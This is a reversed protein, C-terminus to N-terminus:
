SILLITESEIGGRGRITSPTGRGNLIESRLQREAADPHPSASFLRFSFLFSSGIAIKCHEFSFIFSPEAELM